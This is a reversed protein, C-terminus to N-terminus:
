DKTEPASLVQNLQSGLELFFRDAEAQLVLLREVEARLGTAGVCARDLYAQRQRADSQKLAEFLIEETQQSAANM